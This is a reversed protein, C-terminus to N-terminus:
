PRKVRTEWLDERKGTPTYICYVIVFLHVQSFEIDQLQSEKREKTKSDWILGWTIYPLIVILTIKKINILIVDLHLNVTHIYTYQLVCSSM